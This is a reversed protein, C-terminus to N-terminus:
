DIPHLPSLWFIVIKCLLRRPLWISRISHLLDASLSPWSALHHIAFTTTSDSSHPTITPTYQYMLLTTWRPYFRFRSVCSYQPTTASSDKRLSTSGTRFSPTEVMLAKRVRWCSSLRYPLWSVMGYHSTSWFLAGAPRISSCSGYSSCFWLYAVSLGLWKVATMAVREYCYRSQTM